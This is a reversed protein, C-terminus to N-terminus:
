EWLLAVGDACTSMMKFSGENIKTLSLMKNEHAVYEVIDKKNADYQYLSGNFSAALIKSPSPSLLSRIETEGFKWMDSIKQADNQKRFDLKLTEGTACGVYLWDEDFSVSRFSMSSQFQVSAENSRTDWLTVVNDDTCYVVVNLDVQCVSHVVSTKRRKLINKPLNTQATLMDWLAISNVGASATILSTEDLFKSCRVTNSHWSCRQVIKLGQQNFTFIKVMKDNSTSCLLSDGNTDLSYVSGNHAAEATYSTEALPFITEPQLLFQEHCDNIKRRAFTESQDRPDPLIKISALNLCHIDKKNTGLFALGHKDSFVSCRIPTDINCLYCIPKLTSQSHNKAIFERGIENTQLMRDDSQQTSVEVASMSQAVINTVLESVLSKLETTTPNEKINEAEKNENVDEVLGVEEDNNAPVAKSEGLYDEMDPPLAEDQEPLSAADSEEKEQASSLKKSVFVEINPKDSGQKRENRKVRLFNRLCEQREKRKRQSDQRRKLIEVDNLVKSKTKSKNKLDNEKLINKKPLPKLAPNDFTIFSKSRSRHKKLNALAETVDKLVNPNKNENVNLSTKIKNKFELGKVQADLELASLTHLLGQKQLFEAVQQLSINTSTM